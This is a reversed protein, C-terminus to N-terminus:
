PAKALRAAVLMTLDAAKDYSVINVSANSGIDLIMLYNGEARVGDIIAKLRAQLPALLERQSGEVTTQLDQLKAQLTDQSAQLTKERAARDAATMMAQAQQYGAVASDFVARLKDAQANAQAAEKTWTSEAQAYGPMGRLLPAVNIFAIQADGPVGLTAAPPRTAPKPTAQGALTGTVIGTTLALVLSCRVLGM